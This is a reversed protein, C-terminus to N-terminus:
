RASREGTGEQSGGDRICFKLRLKHDLTTSVGGGQKLNKKRTGGGEGKQFLLVFFIDINSRRTKKKGAKIRRTASKEDFTVM